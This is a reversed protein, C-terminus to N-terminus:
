FTLPWTNTYGVMRFSVTIGMLSPLDTCSYRRCVPRFSVTLSILYIIKKLSWLCLLAHRQGQKQSIQFSGQSSSHTGAVGATLSSLSLSTAWNYGVRQSGMPQLRGREEMWPIKWALTSSHTAMDMELPDEQGLSQVRTERVTPPLKVMQAVPSTLSVCYISLSPDQFKDLGPLLDPWGSGSKAVNWSKYFLAFPM